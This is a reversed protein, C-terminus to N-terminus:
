SVLPVNMRLEVGTIRGVVEIKEVIHQQEGMSVFSLNRYFRCRSVVM